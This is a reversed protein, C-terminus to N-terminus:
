GGLSAPGRDPMRRAVVLLWVMWAANLVVALVIGTSQTESFGQTGATWGQVSYALASLGMRYPIARPVRGTRMMAIAYLLVALGLM